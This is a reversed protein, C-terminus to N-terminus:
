KKSLDKGDDKCNSVNNDKEKQQAVMEYDKDTTEVKM